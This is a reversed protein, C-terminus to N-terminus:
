SGRGPTAASVQSANVTSVAGTAGAASGGSGPAKTVPTGASIESGIPRLTCLTGPGSSFGCVKSVTSASASARATHFASRGGSESGTSGFAPSVDTCRTPTRVPSFSEMVLLRNDPADFEIQYITGRPIVLYDGYGFYIIGFATKLVGSGKHVFLIEDADANKFFYDQTGNIPAALGVHLDNNVFLTTRSELYNDNEPLEFGQFSLAELNKEIAIAPSVDYAEGKYKVITPPHLHYVLASVGSFGQTGVLEEAYLSGNNEQRFQVHRKHPIKGLRHYFM